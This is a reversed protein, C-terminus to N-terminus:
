DRKGKSESISSSVVLSSTSSSEILTSLTERSQSYFYFYIEVEVLYEVVIVLRSPDFAWTVNM